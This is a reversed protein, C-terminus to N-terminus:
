SCHGKPVCQGAFVPHVLPKVIGRAGFGGALRGRPTPESVIQNLVSKADIGSITGGVIIFQLGKNPLGWSGSDSTKLVKQCGHM